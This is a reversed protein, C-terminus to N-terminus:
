NLSSSSSASENGPFNAFVNRLEFYIDRMGFEELKSFAKLNTLLKSSDVNYIKFKPMDGSEIKKLSIGVLEKKEMLKVIHANLKM